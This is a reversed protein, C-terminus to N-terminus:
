GLVTMVVYVVRFPVLYNFANYEVVSRLLSHTELSDGAMKRKYGDMSEQEFGDISPTLIGDLLTCYLVRRTKGMVHNQGYGDLLLRSYDSIADLVM